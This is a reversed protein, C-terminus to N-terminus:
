ATTITRWAGIFIRLINTDSRIYMQGPQVNAVEYFAGQAATMVPVNTMPIWATTTVGAAATVYTQYNKYINLTKDYVIAGNRLENPDILAIEATTMSPAYFAHKTSNPQIDLGTLRTIATKPM